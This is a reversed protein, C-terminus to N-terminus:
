PYGVTFADKEEWNWLKLLTTMTAKITGTKKVTESLLDSSSM